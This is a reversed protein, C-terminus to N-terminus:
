SLGQDKQMVSPSLNHLGEQQDDLIVAQFTIEDGEIFVSMTDPSSIVVSPSTNVNSKDTEAQECASSLIVLWPLYRNM